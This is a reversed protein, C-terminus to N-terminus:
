KESLSFGYKYLATAIKNQIDTFKISFALLKLIYNQIKLKVNEDGALWVTKVGEIISRILNETDSATNKEILAAYDFNFLYDVQRDLIEKKFRLFYKSTYSTIIRNGALKALKLNNRMELFERKGRSNNIFFEIMDSLENVNSKSIDLIAGELTDRDM